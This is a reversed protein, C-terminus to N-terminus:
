PEQLELQSRSGGIGHFSRISKLMWTCHMMFLGMEATSMCLCANAMTRVIVLLSWSIPMDYNPSILFWNSFNRRQRSGLLQTTWNRSQWFSFFSYLLLHKSVWTRLRTNLFCLIFVSIWSFPFIMLTCSVFVM